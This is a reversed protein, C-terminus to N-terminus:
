SPMLVIQTMGDVNVSYLEKENPHFGVDVLAACHIVVDVGKMANILQRENRIDATTIQMEKVIKHELSPSLLLLYLTILRHQRHCNLALDNARIIPGAIPESRSM